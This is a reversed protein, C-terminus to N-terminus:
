PGYIIESQNGINRPTAKPCANINSHVTNSCTGHLKRAITDLKAM